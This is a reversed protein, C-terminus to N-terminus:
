DDADREEIPFIKILRDELTRIRALVAAIDARYDEKIRAIRIEMRDNSKDFLKRPTNTFRNDYGM